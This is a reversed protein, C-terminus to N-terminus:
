HSVILHIGEYYNILYLAMREQEHQIQEEFTQEKKQFSFIMVGGIILGVIPVVADFDQNTFTSAATGLNGGVGVNRGARRLM